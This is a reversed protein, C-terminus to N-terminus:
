LEDKPSEREPDQEGGGAESGGSSANAAPTWALATAIAEEALAALREYTPVSELCSMSADDHVHPLACAAPLTAPLAFEGGAALERSAGGLALGM